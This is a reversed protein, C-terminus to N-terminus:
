QVCWKWGKSIHTTGCSVWDSFKICTITGDARSYYLNNITFLTLKSLEQTCHFCPASESLKGGRSIRIVVLDFSKRNKIKNSKILYTMKNVADIEAHVKIKDNNYRCKDSNEGVAIKGRLTYFIGSAKRLHLPSFQLIRHIVFEM